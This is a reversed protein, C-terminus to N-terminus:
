RNVTWRKELRWIIIKALSLTTFSISLLILALYFLSSQYLHDMAETFEDALTVTVTTISNFLSLISLNLSVSHNNGNVFSVAMTEGMARGLGFIISGIVGTKTYPIVINKIVEWRTAGMGYASEKIVNPVLNFADKILSSIFPIIMISLVLGSTLTDVGITAGKFFIGIIPLNHLHDHLWPEITNQMVPSLVFLGWMGYIVTPIAALLEITTSVIPKFWKPALETIYIAIGISFPTAILIAILTTYFTGILPILGGFKGSVDDWDTSTIFHLFGFTKIALISEKFLVLFIFIAISPILVAALFAVSKFLSNLIKGNRYFSTPKYNVMVRELEVM